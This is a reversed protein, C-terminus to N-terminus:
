LPAPVKAEVYWRDKEQYLFTEKGHILIRYRIRLRGQNFMATSDVPHSSDILYRKNDLIIEKPTLSGDAGCQVTVTVYRKVRTENAKM